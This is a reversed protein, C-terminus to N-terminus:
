AERKQDDSAPVTFTVTTGEAATSDVSVSGGLYEMREKLSFLGYGLVNTEYNDTIEFGQGDDIVLISYHDEEDSSRIEIAVNQAEAHKIVNLLVERICQFVMVAVDTSVQLHNEASEVTFAIGERLFLSDCLWHIASILGLEYLVPPSLEFTLQKTERISDALLEHAEALRYLQSNNLIFIISGDADEVYNRVIFEDSVPLRSLVGERNTTPNEVLLHGEPTPVLLSGNELLVTELTFLDTTVVIEDDAEIIVQECSQSAFQYIHLGNGFTLLWLCGREDFILKRVNHELFYDVVERPPSIFHGVRQDFYQPTSNSNLVWLNNQDDLAIDIISDSHLSNPDSAKHGYIVLRKGDYRHLGGKTAIWIFGTKDQLVRHVMGQRLGSEQTIRNFRLKEQGFLPQWALCLALCALLLCCAAASNNTHPSSAPKM